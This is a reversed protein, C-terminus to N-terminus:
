ILQHKTIILHIKDCTGVPATSKQVVICKSNIYSGVDKAVSFLNELLPNGEKDEPTGVTIFVIDCSEINSEINSKFFLRENLNSSILESLGPEFIPM